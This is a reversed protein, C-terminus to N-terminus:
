KLEGFGRLTDATHLKPTHNTIGYSQIGLAVMTGIGCPITNGGIDQVCIKPNKQQNNM